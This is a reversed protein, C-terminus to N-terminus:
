LSKLYEDSANFTDTYDVVREWLDSRVPKQYALMPSSIYCDFKPLVNIDLWTDFLQGGKYEYNDVIYQAMERTYGVAHTCWASHVKLIHKSVRIPIICDPYPKCNAGLYFLDWKPLEKVIYEFRNLNRFQVDDECLLATELGSALFKKLMGIQSMCFSVKPDKDPIAYFPEIHVGKEIEDEVLLWRDPRNSQTLCIVIDFFKNIM